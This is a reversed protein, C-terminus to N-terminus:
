INKNVLKFTFAVKPDSLDWGSTEEKVLESNKKCIDRLANGVSKRVYESEDANHKSILTIAIAPNQKFYFRSTWIRLGEIVARVINPNKATLWEKIVPLVHDYGKSNCFHDFAKALMEQVRWNDDIAVHTKLLHLAAKNKVSLQGLLYTALMRAQYSDDALLETATDLHDLSNDELLKDGAEIILKFGHETKKLKNILQEM